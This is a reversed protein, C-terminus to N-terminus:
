SCVVSDTSLICFFFFFSELLIHFPALSCLVALSSLQIHFSLRCISPEYPLSLRVDGDADHQKDSVSGNSNMEDKRRKRHPTSADEANGAAYRSYYEAMGSDSASLAWEQMREAVLAQAIEERIRKREAVAAPNPDERAWKVTLSQVSSIFCM